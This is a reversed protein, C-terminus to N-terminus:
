TAVSENLEIRDVMWVLQRLNVCSELHSGNMLNLSRLRLSKVSKFNM